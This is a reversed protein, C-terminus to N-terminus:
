FLLDQIHKIGVLEIALLYSALLDDDSSDLQLYHAFNKLISM